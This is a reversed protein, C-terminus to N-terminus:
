SPGLEVGYRNQYMGLRSELMSLLTTAGDATRGEKVLLSAAGIKLSTDDVVDYTAYAGGLEDIGSQAATAANEANGDELMQQGLTLWARAGAAHAHPPAASDPADDMDFTASARASQDGVTRETSVSWRGADLATVEASSGPDAFTPPTMLLVMLLSSFM